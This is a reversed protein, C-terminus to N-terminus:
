CLDLGQQPPAALLLQIRLSVRRCVLAQPKCVVSIGSPSCYDGCAVIIHVSAVGQPAFQSALQICTVRGLSVLWRCAPMSSCLLACMAHRAAVLQGGHQLLAWGVLARSCSHASLWVVLLSCLAGMEVPWGLGFFVRAGLLASEQACCAMCALPVQPPSHM